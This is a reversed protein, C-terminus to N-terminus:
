LQQSFCSPVYISAGGPMPCQLWFGNMLHNSSGSVIGNSVVNGGCYLVWAKSCAILCDNGTSQFADLNLLNAGSSTLANGPYARCVSRGTRNSKFEESRERLRQTIEGLHETTIEVQEVNSTAQNFVTGIASHVEQPSVIQGGNAVLKSVGDKSPDFVNPVSPFKIHSIKASIETIVNGCEIAAITISAMATGTAILSASAPMACIIYSPSGVGATALTLGTAGVGCTATGAVMVGAMVTSAGAMAMSFTCVRNDKFKIQSQPSPSQKITTCNIVSLLLTVITAKLM